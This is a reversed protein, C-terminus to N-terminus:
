QGLAQCAAECAADIVDWEEYVFGAIVPVAVICWGWSAVLCVVVIVAVAVLIVIQCELACDQDTDVSISGGVNLQSIAHPLMTDMTVFSAAMILYLGGLERVTSNQSPLDQLAVIGLGVANGALQNAQTSSYNLVFVDGLKLDKGTPIINAGITSGWNRSTSPNSALGDEITVTYAKTTETYQLYVVNVGNVVGTSIM